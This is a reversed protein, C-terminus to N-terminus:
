VSKSMRPCLFMSCITGDETRYALYYDELEELIEEDNLFHDMFSQIREEGNIYPQRVIMVMSLNEKELIYDALQIMDEDSIRHIHIITAEGNYRELVPFIKRQEIIMEIKENVIKNMLM